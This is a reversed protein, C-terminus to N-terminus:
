AFQVADFDDGVARDAICDDLNLSRHSERVPHQDSRPGATDESGDGEQEAPDNAAEEHFEFGVM